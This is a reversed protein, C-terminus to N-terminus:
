YFFTKFTFIRCCEIKKRTQTSFLSSFQQRAHSFTFTFHMQPSSFRARFTLFFLFQFSPQNFFYFFFNAPFNFTMPSPTDSAFFPCFLKDIKGDIKVKEWAEEKKRREVGCFTLSHPFHSSSVRQLASFFTKWRFKEETHGAARGDRHIVIPNSEASFMKYIKREYKPLRCANMKSKQTM